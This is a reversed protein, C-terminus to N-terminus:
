KLENEAKLIIVKVKEEPIWDSRGNKLEVEHHGRCSMPQGKRRLHYTHSILFLFNM